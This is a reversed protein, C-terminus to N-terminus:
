SSAPAPGNDIRAAAATKPDPRDSKSTNLGHDRYMGGAFTSTFKSTRPHYAVPMEQKSPARAGFMSNSTMYLPNQPRQRARAKASDSFREPLASSPAANPSTSRSSLPAASPSPSVKREESFMMQQAAVQFPKAM